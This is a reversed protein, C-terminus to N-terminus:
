MSTERERETEEKRKRQFDIFIDGPSSKKKFGREIEVWKNGWECEYERIFKESTMIEDAAWGLFRQNTEREEEHAAM